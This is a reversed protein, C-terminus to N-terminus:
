TLWHGPGPTVETVHGGLQGLVLIRVVGLDNEPVQGLPFAGFEEALVVLSYVARMIQSAVPPQLPEQVCPPQRDDRGASGSVVFLKFLHATAGGPRPGCLFDDRAPLTPQRRRLESATFYKASNHSRTQGAKM